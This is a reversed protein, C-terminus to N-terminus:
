KPVAKGAVGAARTVVQLPKGKFMANVGIALLILGVAVEGVRMWLNPQFLGGLPNLSNIAQQATTQALGTPSSGALQAQHQWAVAEAQTTFPGAVTNVPRTAAQEVVYNTQQPGRPGGPRSVRNVVWWSASM